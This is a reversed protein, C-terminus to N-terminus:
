SPIGGAILLRAALKRRSPVGLKDFIHKVHEQVTHRSLGLQHSLDAVLHGQLLGARHADARLFRMLRDSVVM